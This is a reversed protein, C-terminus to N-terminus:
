NVGAINGLNVRTFLRSGTHERVTIILVVVVVIIIETIIIIQTSCALAKSYSAAVPASVCYRFPSPNGRSPNV